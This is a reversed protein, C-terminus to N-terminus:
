SCGPFHLGNQLHIYLTLVTLIKIGLMCVSYHQINSQKIAICVHYLCFCSFNPLNIRAYFQTLESLSKNSGYIILCAKSNNSIM